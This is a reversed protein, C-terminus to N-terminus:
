KVSKKYTADDFKDIFKMSLIHTQKVSIKYTADNFEDM